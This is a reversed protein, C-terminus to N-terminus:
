NNVDFFEFSDLSILLTDGNLSFQFGRLTCLRIPELCVLSFPGASLSSPSIHCVTTYMIRSRVYLTFLAAM